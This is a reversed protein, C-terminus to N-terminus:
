TLEDSGLDDRPGDQVVSDRAFEGKDDVELEDVSYEAGLGAEIEPDFPIPDGGFGGQVQTAGVGKPDHRPIM